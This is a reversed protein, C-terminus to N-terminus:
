LIPGRIDEPLTIRLERGVRETLEDPRLARNADCLRWFLEPDGLYQAALNDLRDGEAVSHVQVTQFREPQPVLRRRLYVIKTGDATETEATGLGHYRSTVPFLDNM